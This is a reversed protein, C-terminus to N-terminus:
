ATPTTGFGGTIGLFSDLELAAFVILVVILFNWIHALNIVGQEGDM